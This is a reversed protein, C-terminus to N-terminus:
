ELALAGKLGRGILRLPHVQKDVHHHEGAFHRHAVRWPIEVGDPNLICCAVATKLKALVLGGRAGPVVEVVIARGVPDNNSFQGLVAGLLLDEDLVLVARQLAHVEARGVLARLSVLLRVNHTEELLVALAPNGFVGAHQSADGPFIQLVGVQEDEAGGGAFENDLALAQAVVLQAGPLDADAVLALDPIPQQHSARLTGAETGGVDGSRARELVPGGIILKFFGESGFVREM